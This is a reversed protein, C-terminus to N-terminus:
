NERKYSFNLITEFVAGFGEGTKLKKILASAKQASRNMMIKHKEAAKSSEAIRVIKSIDDPTVDKKGLMELVFKREDDKANELVLSYLLTKKGERVDSGAPKGTIEENGFLNLEDDRMQFLTGIELGTQILKQSEKTSAGATLAGAALPLSFTYCATKMRYINLITLTDPFCETGSIYLDDMQGFGTTVAERNFLATLSTKRKPSIKTLNLMDSALFYCINGLCLAINESNREVDCDQKGELDKRYQVHMSPAGRRMEDRDMVDDHILFGAHLLELAGAVPDIVSRDKGGYAEYALYALAGRVMKGRSIFEKIKRFSDDPWRNQGSFVASQRDLEADLYQKLLLKKEKVYSNM